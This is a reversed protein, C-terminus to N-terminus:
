SAVGSLPQDTAPNSAPVGPRTAEEVDLARNFFRLDSDRWAWLDPWKLLKVVLRETTITLRKELRLKRAM